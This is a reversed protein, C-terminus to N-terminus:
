KVMRKRSYYVVMKQNPDVQAPMFFQGRPGEFYFFLPDEIEIESLTRNNIPDYILLTNYDDRLNILWLDNNLWSIGKWQDNLDIEAIKEGQISLEVMKFGDELDEMMIKQKDPSFDIGSSREARLFKQAENDRLFYYNGKLSGILTGDLALDKSSVLDPVCKQIYRAKPYSTEIVVEPTFTASQTLTATETPLADATSSPKPTASITKTATPEPPAIGIGSLPKPTLTLKEQNNCSGVLLSVLVLVSM